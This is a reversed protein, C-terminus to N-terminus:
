LGGYEMGLLESESCEDCYGAGNNEESEELVCGCNGCAPLEDNM